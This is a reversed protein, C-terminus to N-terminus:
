ENSGGKTLTFFAGAGEPEILFKRLDEAYQRGRSGRGTAQVNPCPAKLKGALWSVFDLGHIGVLSAVERGQADWVRSDHAEEGGRNIQMVPLEALQEDSFGMEYFTEFGYIGHGLESAEETLWFVLAHWKDLGFRNNKTFQISM